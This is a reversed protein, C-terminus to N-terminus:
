GQPCEGLPSCLDGAPAGAASRMHSNLYPKDYTSWEMVAQLWRARAGWLESVSSWFQAAQMKVQWPEPVNKQVGKASVLRMRQLDKAQARISKEGSQVAAAAASWQRRLQKLLRLEKLQAAKAALAYQQAQYHANTRDGSGRGGIPINISAGVEPGNLASPGSRVTEDIYGAFLDTKVGQAWYARQRAQFSHSLAELRQGRPSRRAITPLDSASPPRLPLAWYDQPPSPLGPAEPPLAALQQDVKSHLTVSQAAGQLVAQWLQASVPQRKVANLDRDAVQLSDQAQQLAERQHQAAWANLSQELLVQEQAVASDDVQAEAADVQARASDIRGPRRGFYDLPDWSLRAEAYTELNTFTGSPGASGAGRPFYTVDGRFDLSRDGTEAVVTGKSANVGAQASRVAPLDRAQTRIQQLYAQWSAAANTGAALAPPSLYVSTLLLCFCIGTFLRADRGPRRETSRRRNVSARGSARCGESQRDM